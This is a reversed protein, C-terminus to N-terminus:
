EGGEGGWGKWLLLLMNSQVHENNPINTERLRKYHIVWSYKAVSAEFKTPVTDPLFYESSNM